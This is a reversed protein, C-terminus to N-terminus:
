LELFTDQSCPLNFSSSPLDVPLMFLQCFRIFPRGAARFTSTSSFEELIVSLQLFNVSRGAARYTSTPDELRIHFQSIDVEQADPLGSSLSLHCNVMMAEARAISLYAWGIISLIIYISSIPTAVGMPIAFPRRAWIHCHWTTCHQATGNQAM